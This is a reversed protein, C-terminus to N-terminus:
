LVKGWRDVNRPPLDVETVTLNTYEHELYAQAAKILKERAEEPTTGYFRTENIPGPAGIAIAVFPDIVATIGKLRQYTLIQFKM